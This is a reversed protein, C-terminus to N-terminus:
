VLLQRDPHVGQPRGGSKNLTELRNVVGIALEGMLRELWDTLNEAERVNSLKGRWHQSWVGSEYDLGYQLVVVAGKAKGSADDIVFLAATHRAQYLQRPPTDAKTLQTLYSLDEIFRPVLKVEVPLEENGSDRLAMLSVHPGGEELKDKSRCCPMDRDVGWALANELEKGRLKFGDPGQFPRWSDITLHLGKMYPNIWPYTCVVYMLFGWIQLLQALPLCDQAVMEVMELILSKTKDWKEQSVM